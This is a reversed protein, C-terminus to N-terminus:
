DIKVALFEVWAIEIGKNGIGFVRKIAGVKVEGKELDGGGM